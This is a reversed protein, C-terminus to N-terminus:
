FLLYWAGYLALLLWTEMGMTAAESKPSLTPPPTTTNVAGTGGTSPASPSGTPPTSPPPTTTGPLTTGTGGTSPTSTGPTTSPVPSNDCYPVGLNTCCPDTNYLLCGRPCDTPCLPQIMACFVNSCNPPRKKPCNPCGTPISPIDITSEGNESSAARTTSTSTIVPASFTQALAGALMFFALLLAYGLHNM